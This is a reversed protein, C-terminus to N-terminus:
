SKKKLTARPPTAVRHDAAIKRLADLDPELQDLGNLQKSTADLEAVARGTKPVLTMSGGDPADVIVLSCINGTTDYHVYVAM